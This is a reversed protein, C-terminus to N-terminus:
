ASLSLIEYRFKPRVSMMWIGFVFVCNIVLAARAVRLDHGNTNTSDVGFTTAYLTFSLTAFFHLAFAFYVRIRWARKWYCNVMAKIAECNFVEVSLPAALLLPIVDNDGEMNFNDDLTADKSAVVGLVKFVATIQEGTTDEWDNSAEDLKRRWYERPPMDTAGSGYFVNTSRVLAESNRAEFFKRSVSFRGIEFCLSDDMFYQEMRRPFLWLLQAFNNHLINMVQSQCFVSIHSYEEVAVSLIYEALDLAENKIAKRLIDIFGDSSRWSLGVNLKNEVMSEFLVKVCSTKSEEVCKHFITKAYTNRLTLSQIGFKSILRCECSAKSVGSALFHYKKVNEETIRVELANEM